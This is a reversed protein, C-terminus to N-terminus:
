KEFKVSPFLGEDTHPLFLASMYKEMFKNDASLEQYSMNATIKGAELLVGQDIVAKACGFLSGNGVFKYLENPIDPLLGITIAEKIRIYNGFSGAILVQDIEGIEVGVGEVLTTIGAYVAAKARMLNDIDVESIVIDKDIGTVQSWAVVYEWGGEPTKRVRDTSLDQNIKGRKDIAGSLFLEALLDILGSGCIGIAQKDGITTFVTEYTDREILVREIAGDISRIGNKVGGGEFAPGASCSCGVLWDSGSGLVIEGNTGIDIYLTLKDSEILGSAVVGSTIDGGLYSAVCPFSAVKADPLVTINLDDGSVLPGFSFVPVYPAERIRDTTVGYFLHTMITNGAVIILDVDNKEVGNKKLLDNILKDITEAARKQLLQLGDGKKAFVMRSIVDDGLSIQGNYESSEFLIEKNNLDVLAGSCTTTGIDVAIAFQRSATNGNEVRVLRYHSSEKVLTATVKWDADRILTELDKLVALEVVIDTASLDKQLRRLIRSSDSVSDELSPAALELYKKFVKPDLPLNELQENWSELTSTLTKIKGRSKGLLESELPVLVTLDGLVTTQCALVYGEDIEEATLKSRNDSSYGDGTVVVKCKGCTGEGGCSANIHVDAKAAAQLLNEGKEIDVSRNTPKFLIKPM